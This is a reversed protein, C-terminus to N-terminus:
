VTAFYCRAIRRRVTESDDREASLVLHAIDTVDLPHAKTALYRAVDAIQRPLGDGRARLLRTFRLESLGAEALATGLRIDRRHLGSLIAAARIIAAWSQEAAGTTAGAGTVAGDPEVYDIMVRWFAAASPDHPDMRRLSAVDGPSLVKDIAYTVRGVISALSKRESPAAELTTSSLPQTM